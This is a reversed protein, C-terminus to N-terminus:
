LHVLGKVAGIDEVRNIKASVSTMSVFATIMEDDTYHAHQEFVRRGVANNHFDMARNLPDNKFANEHWDTIGKTWTLVKGM